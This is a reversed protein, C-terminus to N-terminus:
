TSSIGVNGVNGVSGANGVNGGNGTNGYHGAFVDGGQMKPAFDASTNKDWAYAGWGATSISLNILGSPQRGNFHRDIWM